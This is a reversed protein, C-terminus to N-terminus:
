WVKGLYKNKNCALEWVVVRGPGVRLDVQWREEM